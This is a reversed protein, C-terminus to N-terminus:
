LNIVDVTVNPPIVSPIMAFFFARVVLVLVSVIVGGLM